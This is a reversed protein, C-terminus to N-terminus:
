HRTDHSNCCNLITKMSCFKMNPKIDSFTPSHFQTCTWQSITQQYYLSIHTWTRSLHRKINSKMNIASFIVDGTKYVRYLTNYSSKSNSLVDNTERGNEELWCFNMKPNTKTSEVCVYISELVRDNQIADNFSLVIYDDNLNMTFCKM